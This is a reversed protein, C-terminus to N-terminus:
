HSQLEYALNVAGLSENSVELGLTTETNYKAPLKKTPHTIEVRYFGARVGKVGAMDSPLKSPDIAPASMGSANTTGTAPEIVNALFPEPV